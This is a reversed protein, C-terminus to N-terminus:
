GRIELINLSFRPVAAYTFSSQRVVGHSPCVVDHRRDRQESPRTALKAAFAKVPSEQDCKSM